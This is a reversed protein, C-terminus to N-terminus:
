AALKRIDEKRLIRQPNGVVTANDPIDKIVVTGAGITVNNGITIGQQDCFQSRRINWFGSLMVVYFPALSYSCFRWHCM